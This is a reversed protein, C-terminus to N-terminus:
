YEDKSAKSPDVMGRYPALYNEISEDSLMSALQTAQAKTFYFHLPVSRDMATVSNGYADNQISQITISFYPSKEKFEYGYQLDANGYNMIMSPISGWELRCPYEGYLKYTKSTKRILRKEDFEKIYQEVAQKLAPRSVDKFLVHYVETKYWASFGTMQTKVNYIVTAETEKLKGSTSKGFLRTTDLEIDKNEGTFFNVFANKKPANIKGSDKKASKSKDSSEKEGSSSEDQAEYLDSETSQIQNTSKCSVVFMLAFICFVTFIKKM